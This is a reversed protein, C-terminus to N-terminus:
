LDRFPDGSSILRRCKLLLCKSDSKFM